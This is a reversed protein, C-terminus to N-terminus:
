PHWRHVNPATLPHQHRGVCEAAHPVVGHLKRLRQVFSTHTYRQCGHACRQGGILTRMQHAHVAQREVFAAVLELPHLAGPVIHVAGAFPQQRQLALVLGINNMQVLESKAGQGERRRRQHDRVGAHQRPPTRHMATRRRLLPVLVPALHLLAERPGAQHRRRRACHQLRQNAVVTKGMRRQHQRVAAGRRKEVRRFLLRADQAGATEPVFSLVKGRQFGHGPLQRPGHPERAGGVVRVAAANQRRPHVAQALQRRVVDRAM